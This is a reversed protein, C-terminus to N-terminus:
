ALHLDLDDKNQVSRAHQSGSDTRRKFLLPAKRTQLQLRRKDTISIPKRIPKQSGQLLTVLGCPVNKTVAAFACALKPVRRQFLLLFTKSFHFNARGTLGAAYSSVLPLHWINWFCPTSFRRWRSLKPGNCGRRTPILHVDLFIASAKGHDSTRTQVFVVRTKM